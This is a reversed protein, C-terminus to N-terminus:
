LSDIREIRTEKSEARAGDQHLMCRFTLLVGEEDVEHTMNGIQCQEDPEGAMIRYNVSMSNKASCSVASKECTLYLREGGNGMGQVIYEFTDEFPLFSNLIFSDRKLAQLFVLEETINRASGELYKDLVLSRHRQSIFSAKECWRARVEDFRDVGVIERHSAVVLTIPYLAGSLEAMVSDMIQRPPEGDITVNQKDLTFAYAEKRRFASVAYDCAFVSRVEAACVSVTLRYLAHLDKFSFM